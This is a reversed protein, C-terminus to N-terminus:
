KKRSVADSVEKEMYKRHKLPPYGVHKKYLRCFYEVSDIGVAEAIRKISYDTNKLLCTATNVKLSTIYTTYNFGTYKKIIRAIQAESYGFKQSLSKRTITAFNAKMYTMIDLPTDAKKVDRNVVRLLRM